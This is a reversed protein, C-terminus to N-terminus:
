IQNMSYSKQGCHGPSYRLVYFTTSRNVNQAHPNTAWRHQIPQVSEQLWAPSQGNILTPDDVARRWADSWVRVEPLDM